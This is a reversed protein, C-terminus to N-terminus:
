IFFFLCPTKIVQKYTSSRKNIPFLGLMNQSNLCDINSSNSIVSQSRIPYKRPIFILCCDSSMKMECFFYTLSIRFFNLIASHLKTPVSTAVPVFNVFSLSSFNMSGVIKLLRTPLQLYRVIVLGSMTYPTSSTLLYMSFDFDDCQSVAFHIRLYRFPVSFKPM